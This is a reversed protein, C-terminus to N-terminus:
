VARSGVYSEVFVCFVFFDPSFPFVVGFEGLAEEAHFGDVVFGVVGEDGRRAADGVADAAEEGFVFGCHDDLLEAFHVGVELHLGEESFHAFVNEGLHEVGVDLAVCLHELLPEGCCLVGDVCCEHLLVLRCSEHRVAFDDIDAADVHEVSLEEFWAFDGDEDEGAPRLFHVHVTVRLAAVERRSHVILDLLNRIGNANGTDRLIYIIRLRPAPAQNLQLLTRPIIISRDIWRDQGERMRQPEHIDKYLFVEM